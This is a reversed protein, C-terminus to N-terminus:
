TETDPVADSLLGFLITDHYDCLLIPMPTPDSDPFRYPLLIAAPYRPLRGHLGGCRSVVDCTMRELREEMRAPVDAAVERIGWAFNETVCVGVVLLAGPLFECLAHITVNPRFTPVLDIHSVKYNKELLTKGRGSFVVPYTRAKLGAVDSRPELLWRVKSGIANM